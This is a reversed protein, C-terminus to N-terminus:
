TQVTWTLFLPRLQWTPKELQYQIARDAFWFKLTLEKRTITPKMRYRGLFKKAVSGIEQDVEQDIKKGVELRCIQNM